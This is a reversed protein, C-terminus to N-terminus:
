PILLGRLCIGSPQPHQTAKWSPKTWRTEACSTHILEPFAIAMEWTTGGGRRIWLVRSRREKKGKENYYGEKGGVKLGGAEAEWTDTIVPRHWWAWDWQHNETEDPINFTNCRQVQLTVGVCLYCSFLSIQVTPTYIADSLLPPKLRSTETWRCPNQGSWLYGVTLLVYYPVIHNLFCM